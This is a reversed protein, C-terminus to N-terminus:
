ALTLMFLISVILLVAFIIVILRNQKTLNVKEKKSVDYGMGEVITKAELYDKDVVQIEISPAAQYNYTTAMNEDKIFCLISESELKSKVINANQISNLYLVTVWKSM